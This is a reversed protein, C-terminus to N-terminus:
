GELFHALVASMVGVGIDLADEDIDYDPTHHISDIGKAANATGLWAMVVPVRSAYLALDEHSFPYPTRFHLVNRDGILDEVIPTIRAVLHPDNVLPPNMFSYRLSYAAGVAATIADLTRAIQARVRQRQDVDTLSVIGLLHEDGAGDGASPWCSVYVADRFHDGVQMAALLARL